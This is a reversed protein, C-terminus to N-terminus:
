RNRPANWETIELDELRERETEPAIACWADQLPGHERYIELADDFEKSGKEFREQNARVIDRVYTYSGDDHHTSGRAAFEEFSSYESPM